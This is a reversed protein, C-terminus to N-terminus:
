RVGLRELADKARKYGQEASKKYWFIAKDIDKETGYGKEYYLALNSQGIDSGRDAAIKFYKFAEIQSKEAGRGNDYMWGLNNAALVDGIDILKKWLSIAKKYFDNQIESDNCGYNEIHMYMYAVDFGKYEIGWNLVEEAWLSAQIWNKTFVGEGNEYRLFVGYSARYFGMGYAKIFHKVGLYYDKKGGYYGNIAAIGLIYEAFINGQKALKEVEPLVQKVLSINKKEYFMGYLVTTISDGLEYGRKLCNQQLNGDKYRDSDCYVWYLLAYSEPYGLVALQQLLPLAEEFKFMRFSDSAKKYMEETKTKDIVMYDNAITLNICSNNKTTLEWYLKINQTLISVSINFLLKVEDAEIGLAECFEAVITLDEEKLNNSGLLIIFDIIFRYKLDKSKIEEFFDHLQEKKLSYARKLYFEIDGDLKVGALLRNFIYLPAEKREKMSILAVALCQFYLGKIYISEEKLLNNSIPFNIAKLAKIIFDKEEFAPADSHEIKKNMREILDMLLEKDNNSLNNINEILQASLEM